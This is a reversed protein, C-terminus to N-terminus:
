RRRRDRFTPVKRAARKQSVATRTRGTRAAVAADTDTGLLALEEDTWARGGGPSGSFAPIKRLTRQSTVASTTRGLKEAVVKDHDTGLLAIQEATWGGRAPTWRPGPKLGLRKSTESKADLEEDTWEKAKIADAGKQAAASIARKSGQTTARGGVGFAKRWRWVVGSSVGFHHKLAMASETRIARVLEPCVWLGSGGRQEAPQVRPWQIPARSMSTVVCDTDRYLCTVRHGVRVAPPTYTGLLPPAVPV